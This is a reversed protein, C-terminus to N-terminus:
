KKKSFTTKVKQVKPAEIQNEMCNRNKGEVLVTFMEFGNEDSIDIIVGTKPMQEKKSTFASEYFSVLDGIKWPYDM